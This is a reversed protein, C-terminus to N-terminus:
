ESSLQNYQSNQPLNITNLVLVKDLSPQYFVVFKFQDSASTSGNVSYIIKYNLRGDSLELEEVKFISKNQVVSGYKLSIYSIINQINTNTAVL